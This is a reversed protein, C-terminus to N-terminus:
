KKFFHYLFHYVGNNMVDETIITATEKLDPHSNGM